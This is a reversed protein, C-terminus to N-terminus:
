SDLKPFKSRDVETGLFKKKIETSTDFKQPIVGMNETPKPPEPNSLAEEADRFNSEIQSELSQSLSEGKKKSAEADSVNKQVSGMQIPEPANNKSNQVMLILHNIRDVLGALSPYTLEEVLKKIQIETFVKIEFSNRLRITKIREYLEFLKGSLFNLKSTDITEFDSKMKILDEKPFNVSEPDALSDRILNLTHTFEISDWLFKYIDQGEHQM